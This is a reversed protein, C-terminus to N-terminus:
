LKPGGPTGPVTDSLGLVFDLIDRATATRGPGRGLSWGADDASLTSGAVAARREFPMRTVAYLAVAGSLTPPLAVPRDGALVLLARTADVLSRIRRRRGGRIQAAVETLPRGASSGLGAETLFRDADDQSPALGAALLVVDALAEKWDGTVASEDTRERNSLPLHRSLDSM